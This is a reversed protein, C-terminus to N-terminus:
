GHPATYPRSRMARSRLWLVGVMPIWAFIWPWRAMATGPRESVEIRAQAPATGDCIRLRFECAGSRALTTRAHAIRPDPGAELSLVEWPGDQERMELLAGSGGLGLLDLEVPGVAPQAPRVLLTLSRDKAQVVLIPVGGDACVSRTFGLLVIWAPWTRTRRIM